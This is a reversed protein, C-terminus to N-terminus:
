ENNYTNNYIMIFLILITKYGILSYSLINYMYIYVITYFRLYHKVRARLVYVIQRVILCPHVRNVNVFGMIIVIVLIIYLLDIFVFVNYDHYSYNFLYHINNTLVKNKIKYITIIQNCM